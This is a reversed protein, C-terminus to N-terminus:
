RKRRRKSTRKGNRATKHAARLALALGEAYSPLGRDPRAPDGGRRHWGSLEPIPDPPMLPDRLEPPPWDALRADPHLHASM